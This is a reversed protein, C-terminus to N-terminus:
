LSLVSDRGSTMQRVDRCHLGPGSEDSVDHVAVFCHAQQPVLNKTADSWGVISQDVPQVGRSGM